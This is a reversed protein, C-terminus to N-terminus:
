ISVKKWFHPMLLLLVPFIELRGVIMCFSLVIKSFVSYDAFSGLPGVMGLGPGVNGICTAVSSITTVMDKGDISVLILSVTFIAMFAFYFTMVGSVTEEDVVKGDVKITYVAKPHVIRVMERKITKGLILLRINKIGGATSGACGGIFMLVLLIMKSLEPWQNFDTTSYGTTTLISSVQFAAHRLSQGVSDFMSGHINIAIFVTSVAAIGLYLLLEGNKLAAKLSGKFIFYYVSFNVGFIMMFITIIVDIYVNNYAGISTNRSSFGGTGATGFAHILADYLPMGALLLLIVLVITLLSYIAYLIKATQGVRPVLKGPAPGPSEAKMIHLTRAGVSPLIALTLVLVGMGGIWHTFSRWFLIGRPLDEVQKLITAGTTTFGSVSEFFSDIVTPIAGSFYFPMAGFVSILIWGIGVIAFGDRAYIEKVKPKVKVMSVGFLLLLLITVAFAGIDNGRYYIATVLSPLMAAAECLLLIGLTRLVIRYNM